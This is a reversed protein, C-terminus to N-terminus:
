NAEGFGVPIVGDWLVWGATHLETGTYPERDLRLPEPEVILFLEDDDCEDM